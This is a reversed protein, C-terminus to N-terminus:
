SCSPATCNDDGTAIDFLHRPAIRQPNHDDNEKGPTPIEILRSGFENAPCSALGPGTPSPAAPLGNCTLGAQFEQDATLPLGTLNNILLVQNNAADTSFGCAELVGCTQPESQEIGFM